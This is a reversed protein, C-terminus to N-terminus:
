CTMVAKAAKRYPGRPGTPPPFREDIRRVLDEMSWLTDAIGAEMAPSVRLTDHIRTFNYYVVFLALAAVHKEHRKSFGNTLRTFRRNQMRVTLNLRGIMSTSIDDEVPNGEIRKRLAALIAPPSYRAQGKKEPAEGYIKVLQGYDIDAGFQEEVADLYARYGDTTLQFRGPVRERLDAM